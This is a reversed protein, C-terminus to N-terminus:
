ERERPDGDGTAKREARWVPISDSPAPDCERECSCSCTCPFEREWLEGFAVCIALLKELPVHPGPETPDTSLRNDQENYYVPTDTLQDEGAEYEETSVYANQLFEVLAPPVNYEILSDIFLEAPNDVIGYAESRKEVAPLMM